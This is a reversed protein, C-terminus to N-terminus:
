KSNYGQYQKVLQLFNDFSQQDKLHINLSAEIMKSIPQGTNESIYKLDSILQRDLTTNFAIRESKKCYNNRFNFKFM